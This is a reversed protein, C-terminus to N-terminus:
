IRELIIRLKPMTIDYSYTTRVTDQGNRGLKERLHADHLLRELKTVWEETDKATFGNKGDEVVFNNEGIASLIVPVGCAMYEIAKFACKGKNWLSNTLPMVGIDFSHIAKPVAGYESWDLSDIYEIYIGPISNFLSKVKESQLSGVIMLRVSYKRRACECIVPVFLALNDCHDPGHGIWGITIPRHNNYQVSYKSYCSFDIGTPILYVSRNYKLAWDMINHSGVIVIDAIHTLLRTQRPLNLFIADDFDFVLKRRFVSKYFFVIIVFYNSYVARQLFIIDGRKTNLLCRFISIIVRLKGPWPTKSLLQTFPKYVVTSLGLKSLEAAVNFARQRSSATQQDGKPFFHITM